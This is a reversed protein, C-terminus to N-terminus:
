DRLLWFKVGAQELLPACSQPYTSWYVVEQIGANILLKACTLCPSFTTYLVGGKTAIGSFSCQVIANEEAHCCWCEDLKTGSPIDKNACRACGGDFCNRIGRPTGNYGSAVIRDEVVIIAGIQRKTCNSRRAVERAINMYYTNKSPRLVDSM